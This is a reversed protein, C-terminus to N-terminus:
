KGNRFKTNYFSCGATCFLHIQLVIKIGLLVYALYRSNYGYVLNATFLLIYQPILISLYVIYITHILKFDTVYPQYKKLYSKIYSLTIREKLPQKKHIKRISKRNRAGILFDLLIWRLDTILDIDLLILAVYLLIIIKFDEM